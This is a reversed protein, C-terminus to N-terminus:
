DFVEGNIDVEQLLVDAIERRIVLPIDPSTDRLQDICVYTFLAGGVVSRHCYKRLDDPKILQSIVYGTPDSVVLLFDGVRLWCFGSLRRLAKCIDEESITPFKIPLIKAGELERM